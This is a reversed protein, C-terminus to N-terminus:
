SATDNEKAPSYITFYHKKGKISIPCSTLRWEKINLRKQNDKFKMTLTSSSDLNGNEAIQIRKTHEAQWETQNELDTGVIIDLEQFTKGLIEEDYFEVAKQSRIIIKLDNKTSIVAPLGLREITNNLIDKDEIAVGFLLKKAFFFTIIFMALICTIGLWFSVIVWTNYFYHGEFKKLVIGSGEFLLAFAVAGICLMLVLYAITTKFEKDTLKNFIDNM